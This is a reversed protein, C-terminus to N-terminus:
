CHKVLVREAGFGSDQEGVVEYGCTDYFGRGADNATFVELAVADVRQKRLWTEASELLETGIDRGWSDPHVYLRAVFGVNEPRLDPDTTGDPIHETAHVFGRSHDDVDAIPFCDATAITDALDDAAYWDIRDVTETGLFDDDAARWSARALHEVAPADDRVAHRVTSM